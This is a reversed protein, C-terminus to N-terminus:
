AASGDSAAAAGSLKDYASAIRRLLDREEDNATAEDFYVSAVYSRLEGMAERAEDLASQLAAVYQLSTDHKLGEIEADRAKLTTLAKELEDRLQGTHRSSAGDDADSEPPPPLPMWHTPKWSSAWNNQPEVWNWAGSPGEGRKFWERAQSGEGYLRWYTERAGLGASWALIRTEDKPASAIDRWGGFRPGETDSKPSLVPQSQSSGKNVGEVEEASPTIISTM